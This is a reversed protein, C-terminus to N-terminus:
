TWPSEQSAPTGGFLAIGMMGVADYLSCRSEEACREFFRLFWKEVHLRTFEELLTETEGLLADNEEAIARASEAHLHALFELETSMSDAPLNMATSKKLGAKRYCREADLAAPNVFLRAGTGPKGERMREDDLFVGEFLKVAPHDPHNFLRTYECRIAHMAEHDCRVEHSAARLRDVATDFASGSLGAERGVALFDEHLTGEALGGELEKTPFQVLLALLSLYDSLATHLIVALRAPKSAITSSIM